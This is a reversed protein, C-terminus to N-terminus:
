IRAQAVFTGNTDSALVLINEKRCLLASILQQQAPSAVELLSQVLRCGTSDVSLKTFNRVVESVVPDLLAPPLVSILKQVVYTSVTGTM